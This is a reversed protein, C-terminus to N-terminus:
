LRLRDNSEEQDLSPMEAQMLCAMKGKGMDIAAIPFLEEGYTPINTDPSYLAFCGEVIACGEDHLVYLILWPRDALDLELRAMVFNWEVPVPVRQRSVLALKIRSIRMVRVPELQREESHNNNSDTM